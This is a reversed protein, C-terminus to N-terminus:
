AAQARFPHYVEKGRSNVFTIGHKGELKTRKTRQEALQEWQEYTAPRETTNALGASFSFNFSINREQLLSRLLPDNQRFANWEQDLKRRLNLMFKAGGAATGPIAVVLEEGGWRGAWGGADKASQNLNLALFRLAADAVHHGLVENVAKFNDIDLYILSHPKKSRFMQRARSQFASVNFLMKLKPDREEARKLEGSYRATAAQRINELHRTRRAYEKKGMTLHHYRGSKTLVVHRGEEHRFLLREQIRKAQAAKQNVLEHIQEATMDRVNGGALPRSPKLLPMRKLRRHMRFKSVWAFLRGM